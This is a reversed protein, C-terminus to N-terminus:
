PHGGRAAAQEAAVDGLRFHRVLIFEVLQHHFFPVLLHPEFGCLARSYFPEHPAGKALVFLPQADATLPYVVGASPDYAVASKYNYLPVSIGVPPQLPPTQSALAAPMNYIEVNPRGREGARFPWSANPVLLPAGWLGVQDHLEFAHAHTSVGDHSSELVVRQGMRLGEFVENVLEVTHRHGAYESTEVRLPEAPPREVHSGAVDLTHAHELVPSSEYVQHEAADLQARPLGECFHAVNTRASGLGAGMDFMEIGMKYLLSTTGVSDVLPHPEFPDDWNTVNVPQAATGRARASPWMQFAPRFGNIWLKGGNDLYANLYNFSQAANRNREAFPDVFQALSRLGSSQGSGNRVSWVITKYRFTLEIPPPRGARDRVEYVDVLPDFNFGHDVALQTFIGLWQADERQEASSAPDIPETDDVWLLDRERTLEHARIEFVISTVNEADDIVQLYFRHTGHFFTRTPANLNTAAWSRDWQTDDDPDALNWGFRYGVVRGGYSAADAHWRFVVPQGAAVELQIPSSEGLFTFAGFFRERVVLTPGPPRSARLLVANNKGPTTSDFVPTVAGAEDLAQVAFIYFGAEERENVAELGRLSTRVGSSDAADWRRWPSWAAGRPLAYLSEPWATYSGSEFGSPVIVWRSAVPTTVDGDGLPDEGSWSFFVATPSEFIVGARVPPRLRVTPAFNVANFSLYDPTADFLGEDDVARVFFTHWREFPHDFVDRPSEGDDPRPDRRLTDALTVFVSDTAHTSRWRPDNPGPVEVLEPTLSDVAAAHDVLIYDFHDISGDPDSGWWSLHARYPTASSFDPPGGSLVTQPPLNPRRKDLGLENDSCGAAFLCALLWHSRWAM